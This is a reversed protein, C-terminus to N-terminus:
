KEILLMRRKLLRAVSEFINGYSAGFKEPLTTTIDKKKVGYLIRAKEKSWKRLRMKQRLCRNINPNRPLKRGENGSAQHSCNNYM